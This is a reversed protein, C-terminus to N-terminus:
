AGRVVFALAVFPEITLMGSLRADSFLMAVCGRVRFVLTRRSRFDVPMMLRLGRLFM